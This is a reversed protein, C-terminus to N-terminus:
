LDGSLLLDLRNHGQSQIDPDLLQDYMVIETNFSKGKADYVPRPSLSAATAGKVSGPPPLTQAIRTFQQRKEAFPRQYRQFIQRNTEGRCGIGMVVLVLACARVLKQRQKYWGRRLSEASPKMNDEEPAM